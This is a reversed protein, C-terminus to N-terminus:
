TAFGAALAIGVASDMEVLRAALVLELGVLRAPLLM